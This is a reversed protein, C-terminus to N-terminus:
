AGTAGHVTEHPTRNSAGTLAIAIASVRNFVTNQSGTPSLLSSPSTVAKGQCSLIVLSAYPAFVAKRKLEPGAGHSNAAFCCCAYQQVCQVCQVCQM